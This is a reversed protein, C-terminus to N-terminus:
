EACSVLIESWTVIRDM